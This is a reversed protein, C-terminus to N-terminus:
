DIDMTVLPHLKREANVEGESMTKRESTKM